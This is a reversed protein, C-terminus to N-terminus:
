GGGGADSGTDIGTDAGTDAPGDPGGRDNNMPMAQPGLDRGGGGYPPPSSCAWLIAGATATALLVQIASRSRKKKM